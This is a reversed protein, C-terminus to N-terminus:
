PPCEVADNLNLGSLDEGYELEKGYFIEYEAAKGDVSVLSVGPSPSSLSTVFPFAM